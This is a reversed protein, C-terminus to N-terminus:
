YHMNITYGFMIVQKRGTASPELFSLARKTLAPFSSRKSVFIDTSRVAHCRPPMRKFRSKTKVMQNKTSSVVTKTKDKERSATM